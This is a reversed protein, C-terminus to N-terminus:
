RQMIFGINDFYVTGSVPGSADLLFRIEFVLPMAPIFKAPIKVSIKTPDDSNDSIKALSVPDLPIWYASRSQLVPLIKAGDPAKFGPSLFVEATLGIIDKRPLEHPFKNIKLIINKKDKPVVNNLRVAVVTNQRRAKNDKVAKWNSGIKGPGKGNEFTWLIKPYAVVPVAKIYIPPDDPPDDISVGGMWGCITVRGPELAEITFKAAADSMDLKSPTIKAKGRTVKLELVSASPIPTGDGMERYLAWAEVKRGVSVTKPVIFNVDPYIEKSSTKIKPAAGEPPIELVVASFPPLTIPTNAKPFKATGPIPPVSWEPANEIYNWLYSRHSFLRTSIKGAPKFGKLDLKVAAKDTRSINVIMVSLWGDDRRTAISYLKGSGGSVKSAILEDGMHNRWLWFAWYQSKPVIRGDRTFHLVCHGGKEKQTFIDWQNAFDVSTKMMEGVFLCTWLGSTMDASQRDETLKCNWETVGLEIEDARDPQYKEIMARIKAVVGDFKFIHGFLTKDDVLSQKEPYHHFSIFDVHKGANALLAKTFGAYAAGSAPGGIKISPDVAKMAKAFEAFKEAYKKGTMESGDPRYHGMEWRGELENGVEWYEVGYKGKKNAWRVWEAAMKANGTGANVTILVKAGITEYIYDMMRKVDFNGHFGSATGDKNIRFGPAYGSYDIKWKGNKFKSADIKKQLEFGGSWPFDYRVWKMVGNGNWFYEDSWSGGPIRVLGPKWQRLLKGTTPNWYRTPYNWLGMNTGILKGRDVKRITKGTDVEVTALPPPAACAARFLTAFVIAAPIMRVAAIPRIKLM